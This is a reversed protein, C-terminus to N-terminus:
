RHPCPPNYPLQPLYRHWLDETWMAGTIACVRDTAHRYDLDWLRIAGSSGTGIVFDGAPTFVVNWLKDGSDTLPGGIPQPHARDSFDWVQISGSNGSSVMLRSDSTFAVASVSQTHLPIPNDLQVPRMPDRIDWLRVKEHELRVMTHQDPTFTVYTEIEDGTLHVLTNLERPHALDSVDWRSVTLDNTLGHSIQKQAFLTTNDAGFTVDLDTAKDFTIPTGTAAPHTRDSLDWLQLKDDSGVTAMRRWDHSIRISKLRAPLQWDAAPHIHAPDSLDLLAVSMTFAGSEVLMTNGDPSLETGYVDPPLRYGGLQAPQRRNSNDWLTIRGDASETTMRAGSSDFRPTFVTGAHGTIITPPLSWTQIEGAKGGALLTRGDGSFAFTSPGGSCPFTENSPYKCITTSTSLDDSILAPSVPETVNWLAIGGSGSLALTHGDPGFALGRIQQPDGHTDTAVVAGTTRPKRPDQTDWLQVTAKPDTTGNFAGFSDGILGIALMKSDPSFALDAISSPAADLRDALLTPTTTDDVGLLFVTSKTTPDDGSKRTVALVRGDPSVRLMPSPLGQPVTPYLAFPAGAVPAAPNTLDWLTVATMSTTALTRGSGAFAVSLFDQPIGRVPPPTPLAVLQHPVAPDAVDWIRIGTTATTAMLTGDPSFAVQWVADIPVGLQVPHYPNDVDWLRLQSNWDTSALVGGKRGTMSRIGVEHGPTSAMLSMNQTRLLRTRVEADNPALQGAVLYLQAALSPDVRRLRDAEDLVAALTKEDRQERALRTQTYATFGSVLVVIALMALIAKTRVSRRRSRTHAKASTDLFEQALPGVPPPAVNDLANRLLTGRYLLSSDRDHAAWEAADTELRQRVLYGVRDEDIWTRLRPWATLVIEHTLTVADADLTILRTRSLLELAATADELDAARALLDPRLGPRRTDRADRSVSVLALLIARAADQQGLTLENWAYEATEAVSGVVGGVKRYGTTTLRRGDRHQWTAAMVHSLLPLAGPDYTRHGQHDAAGCLETIVLEELGPELELGVTRAPGSIAQALEDQGMPGLPYSRHELTDRLVPHHLCHSYFDARLALVVKIPDDARTACEHLVTLFDTRVVDDTCTTFVEEFQDVVLLRRTGGTRPALAAHARTMAPTGSEAAPSGFVTLLTTLPDAGPTATTVEWEALAPILGASLLSSKGAGSAGTVVVLGTSDRVLDVLETTAATRGFFLQRDERRYPSLGPYPCAAETDEDPDWSTAAQWLRQWEKPEALQRTLPNGAKRALEVLTLVVPLLSEFRAPVNRGAKWDSIRQASAGGPRAGQAARMRTEAATAM